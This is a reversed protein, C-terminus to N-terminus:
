KVKRKELYELLMQKAELAPHLRLPIREGKTHRHLWKPNIVAETKHNNVTIQRQEQHIQTMAANIASEEYKNELVSVLQSAKLFDAKTFIQKPTETM